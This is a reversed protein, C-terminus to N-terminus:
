GVAKYRFGGPDSSEVFGMAEITRDEPARTLWLMLNVSGPHPVADAAQELVAVVDVGLANASHEVLAMIRLAERDNRDLGGFVLAVTARVLLQDKQRRIALSAMREAYARLVRRGRESLGRNLSRNAVGEESRAKEIFHDILHDRPDPLEAPGYFAFRRQAEDSPDFEM